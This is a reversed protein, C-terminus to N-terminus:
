LMFDTLLMVAVIYTKIYCIDNLITGKKHLFTRKRGDPFIDDSSISAISQFVDKWSKSIPQLVLSECLQVINVEKTNFKKSLRVAQSQDNMFIKAKNM